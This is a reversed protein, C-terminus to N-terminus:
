RRAGHAARAASACLRPSQRQPPGVAVGSGCGRRRCGPRRPWGRAAAAAAAAPWGRWPGSAPAAGSAPECAEGSLQCDGQEVSLQGVTMASRRVAGLRRRRRGWRRGCSSRCRRSSDRRPEALARAGLRPAVAGLQGVLLDGRELGPDLLPGATSRIRAHCPLAPIRRGGLPGSSLKQCAARTDHTTHAGAAHHAEAHLSSRHHRAQM